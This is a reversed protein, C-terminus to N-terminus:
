LLRQNRGGIGCERSEGNSRRFYPLGSSKKRLERVRELLYDAARMYDWDDCSNDKWKFDWVSRKRNAPKSSRLNSLNAVLAISSFKMGPKPTEEL